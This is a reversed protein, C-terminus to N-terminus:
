VSLAGKRFDSKSIKVNVCSAVGGGLAADLAPGLEEAREVWYGRGGCAEVVREYPTYALGTAVAREEGYLEVQGRRIQTWGADNGIVAVVPIGQRVLAEFELGHLGFSGDGYVIVVRAEPRALKAAMAYGPGVGLTGLPGPDMWIQPWELELVNAATAVFDGGDGVVIDSPGVRSGLEACVRLPNPPSDDRRAEARMRARRAEDDARVTELWARADKTVVATVLQELVLGVDGHIAVDVRRNRGLEAGDLDVQVITADAPWTPPRGYDVRFDFPTGFMFICDSQALAFRRSRSVLGRHGRPLAGRAMGNLFFPAEFADAASRAAERRPSWRIQSGIVFVPRQAVRLAEAAREIARWDGAPRPPEPLPRTMPEEADDGADLLLDLPVQLFAPGPVGAQAVRFAADVYEVIRRTEPVSAVWKSIPRMLALHDMDQLSGMDALMRPGAGGIVVMPVGARMANAVATVVDTVGPGATVACVGPQGTVRAWGDAAHGATQEHRVDVVRIGEDLCGDYIAQIHGGCLTFLHSTGHRKLARAVLRGGHVIAM